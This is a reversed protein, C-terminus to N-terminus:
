LLVAHLEVVGGAGAREGRVDDGLLGADRELQHLDVEVGLLGGVAGVVQRDVRAAVHGRQLEVVALSPNFIIAWWNEPVFQGADNISYGAPTHMWSNATLIWTASMLTGFAVMATAFM